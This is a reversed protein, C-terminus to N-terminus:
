RMRYRMCNYSAGCKIRRNQIEKAFIFFLMFGTLVTIITEKKKIGIQGFGKVLEQAPTIDYGNSIRYFSSAAYAIALFSNIFNCLFNLNAKTELEESIASATFFLDFGSVSSIIMWRAVM